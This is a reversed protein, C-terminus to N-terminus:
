NLTEPLLHHSNSGAAPLSCIVLHSTIATPNKKGVLLLPTTVCLPTASYIKVPAAAQEVWIFPVPSLCSAEVAQFASSWPQIQQFSCFLLICGQDHVCDLLLKAVTVM